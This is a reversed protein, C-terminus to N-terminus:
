KSQGQHREADNRRKRLDLLGDDLDVSHMARKSRMPDLLGQLAQIANLFCSHVELRSRGHDNGFRLLAEVRLFHSFEELFGAERNGFQFQRNAAPKLLPLVHWRKAHRSQLLHEHKTASFLKAVQLSFSRRASNHLHRAQHVWRMSVVRRPHRYLPKANGGALFSRKVSSKPGPNLGFATAVTTSHSPSGEVVVPAPDVRLGAVKRAGSQM